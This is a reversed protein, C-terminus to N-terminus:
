PTGSSTDRADLERFARDVDTFWAFRVARGQRFTWLHSQGTETDMGSAVLHVHMRIRAAVQDGSERVEDVAIEAREFM